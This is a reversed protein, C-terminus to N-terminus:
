RPRTAYEVANFPGGNSHRPWEEWPDSVSTCGIAWGIMRHDGRDARLAAAIAPWHSWTMPGNPEDSYRSKRPPEALIDAHTLEFAAAVQEKTDRHIVARDFTCTHTIRLHEPVHPAYALAWLKKMEDDRRFTAPMDWGLYRYGLMDWVPPASGHSNRFEAVCTKTTRFIQWLTTYSM